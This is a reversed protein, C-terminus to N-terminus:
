KKLILHIQSEVEEVAKREEMGEPICILFVEKIKGIKKLLKLEYSLDYDHLSFIKRTEILDLNKIIKVEEIGKAVDMIYLIDGELDEVTDFERFEIEPFKKELKKAVRLALSDKRLIPNGFVHIKM